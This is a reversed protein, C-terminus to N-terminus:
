RDADVDFGIMGTMEIFTQHEIRANIVKGRATGTATGNVTTYGNLVVGDQDLELRGSMTGSAGNLLVPTGVLDYTIWDYLPSRLRAKFALTPGPAGGSAPILTVKATDAFTIRDIAGVFPVPHERNYEVEEGLPVVGRWPFFITRLYEDELMHDMRKYTFDDLEPSERQNRLSTISVSRISDIVRGYPSLKFFSVANVLASPVLVSPHRVIELNAIHDRNQTNFTITDDTGRYDLHMSDINSEIELTGEGMGAPRQRQTIYYRLTRESSDVASGTADLIWTRVQETYIYSFLINNRLPPGFQYTEPGTDQGSAPMTIAAVLLLLLVGGALSMM